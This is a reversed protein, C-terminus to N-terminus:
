SGVNAQTIAERLASEITSTTRVAGLEIGLETITQAIAPSIGSIITKCGMLVAAKAIKILHNAVATDVVGVGGIDLMLTRARNDVIGTLAKSM